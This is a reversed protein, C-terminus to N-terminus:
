KSPFLFVGKVFKMQTADKYQVVCVDIHHQPAIHMSRERMQSQYLKHDMLWQNVIWFIYNMIWSIIIWDQQCVTSHCATFLKWNKVTKM